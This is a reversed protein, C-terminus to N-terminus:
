SRGAKRRVGAKKGKKKTPKKKAKPRKKTVNAKVKVVTAAEPQPSLNGSGSFTSSSPTGMAPPPPPTGHCAESACPPTPVASQAAVGGDVRADYVDANNDQDQVVLPQRTFFFVSSGDASADGFYSEGASRGTSILYLCGGSGMAVGNACSGAGEREWEYVDMQGNTDQSVLAEETQFFVRNGEESLNRTVFPNLLNPRIVSNDRALYASSTVGDGLPNCSVCTLRDSPASFLYLEIHHAPNAYSTLQNTSSFLVTKGDPTVRSSQENEDAVESLGFSPFGRWDAEDTLPNLGAVLTTAGEHWEYLRAGGDVFYVYSGDNSIGLTGAINETLEESNGGEISFRYLRGEETYLAYRGDPTATRWV